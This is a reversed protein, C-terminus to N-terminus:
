VETQDMMPEEARLSLLSSSGIQVFMEQAQVVLGSNSNRLRTLTSNWSGMTLTIKKLSMRQLRRHREAFSCIADEHVLLHALELRSLRPWELSELPLSLESLPGGAAVQITLDELNPFSALFSRTQEIFSKAVTLSTVRLRTVNGYQHGGTTLHQANLGGEINLRSIRPFTNLLPLIKGALDHVADQFFPVVWTRDKLSKYHLNQLPRWRWAQLHSLTLSQLQPFSQLLTLFETVDSEFGRSTEREVFSRYNRYATEVADDSSDKTRERLFLPHAMWRQRNLVYPWTGHYVTVHKTAGFCGCSKRLTQLEQLYDYTNLIGLHHILSPFGASAFTSNVLRFRRLDAVSPLFKAIEALIEQPMNDM